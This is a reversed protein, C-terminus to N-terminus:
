CRALKLLSEGLLLKANCGGLGWRFFATLGLGCLCGFGYSATQYVVVGLLVSGAGDTDAGDKEM